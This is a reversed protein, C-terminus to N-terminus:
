ADFIVMMYSNFRDIAKETRQNVADSVKTRTSSINQAAKKAPRKVHELILQANERNVCSPMSISPVREKLQMHLLGLDVKPVTFSGQKSVKETKKALPSKVRSVVEANSKKAEIKETQKSQVEQFYKQRSEKIKIRTESKM